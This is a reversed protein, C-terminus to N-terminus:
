KLAWLDGLGKVCKADVWSALSQRTGSFNQDKYREKLIDLIKTWKSGHDNLLGIIDGAIPDYMSAIVTGKKRGLKQGNGKKTALAEKIRRSIFDRELEAFLGFMTLMVKNQVDDRNTPDIDMGNKIFVIRGGRQTIQDVIYTLQALSRGLRSLETVILLDGKNISSILIDIRRDVTDRKSSINIDQWEDVHPLKKEEIYRRIEGRQNETDQKDTSVRVYAHIKM